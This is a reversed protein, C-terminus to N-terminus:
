IQMLQEQVKDKEIIHIPSTCGLNDIAKKDGETDTSLLITTFPINALTVYDILSKREKDIKILVIVLGSLLSIHSEVLGKLKDFGSQKETKVSALIKLMQQQEAFGQGASEIYCDTGVFMLDLVSETPDQTMLLSASVSVAEEFLDTNEGELLFTDLALGYRSFYENKYQKVIIRNTKASSKWDIIKLPDGPKYERLAIFEDSDGQDMAASLGGQHYKRPGQFHIKPAPYIKPLILLNHDQRISIRNQFIGLPEKRILQYGQLHLSGRKKPLFSVEIEINSNAPIDPLEESEVELFERATILKNWVSTASAPIFWAKKKKTAALTNLYEEKSPSIYKYYESYYIGSLSKKGQNEVTLLYRLKEGAICTEPLLRKCSLTPNFRLSLFYAVLLLIFLFPFLQYFMSRETNLGFFLSVLFIVFLMRGLDTIRARQWNKIREFKKLFPYLKKRM